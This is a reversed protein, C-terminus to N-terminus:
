ITFECLPTKLENVHYVHSQNKHIMWQICLSHFFIRFPQFHSKIFLSISLTRLIVKLFKLAISFQVWGFPEQRDSTILQSHSRSSVCVRKLDGTSDPDLTRELDFIWMKTSLKLFGLIDIYRHIRNSRFHLIGM